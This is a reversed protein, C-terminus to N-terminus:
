APCHRACPRPPCGMSCPLCAPLSRLLASRVAAQASRPAATAALVAATAVAAGGQRPGWARTGARWGLMGGGGCCGGGAGWVQAYLMKRYLRADARTLFTRVGGTYVDKVVMVRDFAVWTSAPYGELPAATAAAAAAAAPPRRRAPLPPTPPSGQDPCASTSSVCRWLRGDWEDGGGCVCGWVRVSM